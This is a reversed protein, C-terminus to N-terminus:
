KKKNMLRRRLEERKKRNKEQAARAQKEEAERNERRSKVKAFENRAKQLRAVEPPTAEPASLSAIALANSARGPMFPDGFGFSQQMINRWQRADEIQAARINQQKKAPPPVKREAEKASKYETEAREYSIDEGVRKFFDPIYSEGLGDEKFSKVVAKYAIDPDGSNLMENEWISQADGLITWAMEPTIREKESKGHNFRDATQQGWGSMGNAAALETGQRMAAMRSREEVTPPAPEGAPIRNARAARAELRLKTAAIQSEELQRMQRAVPNVELQQDIWEMAPKGEIFLNGKEDQAVTIDLKRRLFDLQMEMEPRETPLLGGQLLDKGGELAFYFLRDNPPIGRFARETIQVAEGHSMGTSACLRNVNKNMVYGDVRAKRQEMLEFAAAEQMAKQQVLEMFQKETEPTLEGRAGYAPAHFYTRGDEQSIDVGLRRAYETGASVVAPNNDNLMGFVTQASVLDKYSQSNKWTNWAKPSMQLEGYQSAVDNSIKELTPEAIARYQQEYLSQIALQNRLPRMRQYDEYEAQAQALALKRSQMNLAHEQQLRDERRMAPSELGVLTGAFRALPHADMVGEAANVLVNGGTRAADAVSDLFGGGTGETTTRAQGRGTEMGDFKGDAM